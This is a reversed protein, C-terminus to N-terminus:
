ANVSGPSSRNLYDSREQPTNINQLVLPSDLRIRNVIQNELFRRLSQDGASFQQKLIDLSNSEFIAPLPEPRGTEPNIFCTALCSTDRNNILEQLLDKGVEPMDIAVALIACEPFAQMATLIGVMPGEGSYIDPLLNFEDPFGQEPRCSTVVKPCWESLMRFLHSIQSEGHYNLM